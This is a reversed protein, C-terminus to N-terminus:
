AEQRPPPQLTRALVAARGQMRERLAQLPAGLAQVERVRDDLVKQRARSLKREGDVTVARASAAERQLSDLGAAIDRRLEELAAMVRLQRERLADSILRAFESSLIDRVRILEDDFVIEDQKRWSIFTYLFVGLFLVLFVPGMAPARRINFGMFGGFLSGIMLVLFVVRRGEGLRQLFGRKQIEGRYRGQLHMAEDIPGWFDEPDPRSFRLRREALGLSEVHPALKAEIDRLRAGIEACDALIVARLGEAVRQRLDDTVDPRLTLRIKKGAVEQDLDAPRVNALLEEVLGFLPGKRLGARRGRDRLEQSLLSVEAAAVSKMADIRRRNEADAAVLDVPAEQQQERKRRSTLQRLEAQQRQMVLELVAELRRVAHAEHV